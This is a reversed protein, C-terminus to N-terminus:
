MTLPAGDSPEVGESLSRLEDFLRSREHAIGEGLRAALMVSRWASIEEDRVPGAAHRYADLFATGSEARLQALSPDSPGDPGDAEVLLFLTRCLDAAPDGHAAGEWDIAVWDGSRNRMVNFPHLDTHLLWSGNPLDAAAARISEEIHPTESLRTRRLWQDRVEEFGSGDLAHIAAALWGLDAATESPDALLEEILVPGPLQEFVIAWRGDHERVQDIRPAPAGLQHVADGVEAERRVAAEDVWPEFVKIARGDGGAYVTAQRGRGLIEM